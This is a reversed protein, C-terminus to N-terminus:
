QDDLLRVTGATGDVEVWQGNKLRALLDPIGVVCPKGFERAVLAGHQLLGGVELVVAATNVFLPTWGPDTTVAVLISGPAITREDANHLCVVPGRAIGPSVPMGVLEGPAQDQRPATLIRGRSDIVAPFRRVQRALLELFTGHERLKRRLDLREESAAADLDVYRLGFVDEAKDLRGQAALTRGAELARGRLAQQFLLIFHKPTDRAGAFLDVLLHLRRLLVRRLPGLRGALETCAHQREQALAAHALGPDYAAGSNAMLAVQRLLLAPSDGYRPMSIDMEGPGRCGYTAVFSTWADLFAAPVDHAAIKAELAKLDSFDQPPLLQALRFQAIAMEVVLNGPVGRTLREALAQEDPRDKRVLARIAAMAVLGVAMAPMAVMVAAEIAAPGYRRQLETLALGPAVPAALQALCARERRLYVGRAYRPAALALLMFWMPKRLRWLLRPAIRLLPLMIMPRVPARYTAPDITALIAATLQDSVESSKALKAPSSMWLVISLNLYMRGGAIFLLGEPKDLPFDVPGACRATLQQVTHALWDQGMPSVPGNITLGKSLAVDQYLRRPAGPATQMEQPLPIYTTVPRAQLFHLTGGAYAFEVDVPVEFLRELQRLAQTVEKVQGLTLCYEDALPHRSSRMGGEPAVELMVEKGGLTSNRVEGSAKDVTFHDIIASGAVVSEGLGWNAGILVEDYDNNLPNISFAVGAVESDIQEQIIVAISPAFVPLGLAAKYSLVRVDLCSAFCQRIAQEMGTVPVGLFTRYLGAFSASALDEDPSSSRVAFAPASSMATWDSLQALVDQQQKTWHLTSVLEVLDCCLPTWREPRASELAAWEPKQRLQAIWPAFFEGTLVMAPPVQFGASSLVQLSRAKGGTTGTSPGNAAPIRQFLASRIEHTEPPAASPSAHDSLDRTPHM